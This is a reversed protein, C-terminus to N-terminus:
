NGLLWVMPLYCSKSHISKRRVRTVACVVYWVHQHVRKVELLDLRAGLTLLSTLNSIILNLFKMISINALM